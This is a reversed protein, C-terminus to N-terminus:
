KGNGASLGPKGRRVPWRSRIDNQGVANHMCQVLVLGTNFGNSNCAVPNGSRSVRLGYRGKCPVICAYDIKFASGDHGTEMIEM